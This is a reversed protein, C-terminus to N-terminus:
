QEVCSRQVAGGTSFATRSLGIVVIMKKVTASAPSRAVYEMRLAMTTAGSIVTTDAKLRVTFM